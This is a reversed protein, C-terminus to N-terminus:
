SGEGALLVNQRRYYAALAFAISSGMLGAGHELFNFVDGLLLNEVNTSLAGVVIFGYAVVFWKSRSRYFVAIPVAGIVAVILVSMELPGLADIM